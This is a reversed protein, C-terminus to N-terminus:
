EGLVKFDDPNKDLFELIEMLSQIYRLVDCFLIKSAYVHLSRAVLRKKPGKMLQTETEPRPTTRM